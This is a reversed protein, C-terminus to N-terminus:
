VIGYNDGAAEAVEMIIKDVRAMINTTVEMRTTDTKTTAMRIIVRSIIAMMEAIDRVTTAVGAAVCEVAKDAGDRGEEAIDATMAMDEVMIATPDMAAMVGIHMVRTNLAGTDTLMVAAAVTAIVNRM